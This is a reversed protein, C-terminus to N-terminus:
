ADEQDGISAPIGWPDIKPGSKKRIYMFSRLWLYDALSNASSVETKEMTWSISEDM